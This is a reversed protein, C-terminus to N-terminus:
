GHAMGNRQYWDVADALAIQAPRQPLGLERVAKEPSFFKKKRSMTVAAFCALPERGTIRGGIEGFAAAVYAATHPIKVRPPRKGAITALTALLDSMTLDQCGLIYREGSRGKEAALLHGLACDHVHIVNVGTDVFVPIRGRLFDLIVRGTPTPRWDGPGVPFTPLVAVVDLGSDVFKMAEQEALFKSRSYHVPMDEITTPTDENVPRGDDPLRLVAVSSTFVVRKVGNQVCANLVTVTGKVNVDYLPRPDPVWLRYDAALHFILDCGSVAETVAQEDRIDGLVTEVPLGTLITSHSDPQVLARVSYGRDILIQVLHGGIFGDAGTVLVPKM